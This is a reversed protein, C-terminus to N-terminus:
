RLIRDRVPKAPNGVCVKHPPLDRYASSRAGLVTMDGITVGPGVFADAGIWADHGVSIPTRQLRFTHDRYDHTGACLHAYQSVITRPGITIKGLSYLIAHDGITVRDAIDLMWPIEVRVTPRIAVGRGIRAGFARLILVRYAYWNHFSVRFLPRGLIMWLARAAKGRLSWPSSEPQMQIPTVGASPLEPESPVPPLYTQIPDTPPAAMPSTPPTFHTTTAKRHGSTKSSEGQLEATTDGGRGDAHFAAAPEPQLGASESGKLPAAFHPNRDKYDRLLARLKFAVMGDYSAIFNCFEYGNVGDLIGARLFYMYAFRWLSPFPVRRTVNLKLWRRHRTDATLNAQDTSSKQGTIELYLELAELTSYRNHKAFFHELSRRDQHLMPERIFGVPDDIIIHEHVQRDEYRGAGRKFLRMNWSPFYGCHRIPKGLFYTLRNIFFGNEPVQAVPRSTVQKIERRLADTIVEDADLILTWDSELPLHTLAWNKQHAYGEWPHEVVSAGHQRAIEQTGDTSGSDVVFVQRTWGKVSELCYPLNLCENYTIILVDPMATSGHRFGDAPGPTPCDDTGDIGTFGLPDRRYPHYCYRASVIGGDM